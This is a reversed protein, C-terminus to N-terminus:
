NRIAVWSVSIIKRIFRDTGNKGEERMKKYEEEQQLFLPRNGM